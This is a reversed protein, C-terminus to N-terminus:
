WLCQYWKPGHLEPNKKLSFNNFLAKLTIKMILVDAKNFLTSPFFTYCKEEIPRCPAENHTHQKQAPTEIDPMCQLAIPTNVFLFHLRKRAGYKM